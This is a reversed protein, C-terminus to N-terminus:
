FDTHLWRLSGATGAGDFQRIWNKCFQFTVSLLLKLLPQLNPEPSSRFKHERSWKSLHHAGTAETLGESVLGFRNLWDREMAQPVCVRSLQEVVTHRHM